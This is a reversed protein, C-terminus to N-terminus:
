EVPLWDQVWCAVSSVVSPLSLGGEGGCCYGKGVALGTGGLCPVLLNRQESFYSLGLLWSSGESRLLGFSLNLANNECLFGEM